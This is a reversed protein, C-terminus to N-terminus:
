STNQTAQLCVLVLPVKGPFVKRLLLQVNCESVALSVTAPDTGYKLNQKGSKIVIEGHSLYLLYCSSQRLLAQECILLVSVLLTKNLAPVTAYCTFGGDGSIGTYWRPLLNM